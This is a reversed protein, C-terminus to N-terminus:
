DSVLYGGDVVFDQGTIWRARDSLLYLTIGSIDEVKGLGLLHKDIIHESVGREDFDKETLETMILGPSITNIRQGQKYIEKAITRAAVQLSAKSANLAFQAAEGKYACVSSIFVFASGQESIKKKTCLQVFKIGSWFNVDALDKAGEEAYARLPTMLLTGAIYAAGNIKGYIDVFSRVSKEIGAYDRVDVSATVIRDPYLAKLAELRGENRAIALVDAGSEALEVAVQKGIGSSAGAIIFKKGEFLYKVDSFMLVEARNESYRM